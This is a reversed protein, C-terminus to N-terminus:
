ERHAAPAMVRDTLGIQVGMAAATGLAMKGVEKSVGKAAGPFRLAALGVMVGSLVKHQGVFGSVPKWVYDHLPNAVYNVFAEAAPRAQADTLKEKASNVIATGFTRDWLDTAVMGAAFGAAGVVFAPLGLPALATAALAGGATWAAVSLTNAVVRGVYENAKIEGNRLKQSAFIGELPASFVVGAKVESVFQDRTMAVGSLGALRKAREAVGTAAPTLPRQAQVPVSTM